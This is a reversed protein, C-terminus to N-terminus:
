KSPLIINFILNKPLKETGITDKSLFYVNLIMSHLDLHM